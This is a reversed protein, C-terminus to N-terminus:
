GVDMEDVEKQSMDLMEQLSVVKGKGSKQEEATRGGFITKHETWKEFDEEDLDESYDLGKPDYYRKVMEGLIAKDM